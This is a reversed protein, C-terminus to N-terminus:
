KDGKSILIFSIFPLLMFIGLLYDYLFFLDRFPSAFSYYDEPIFYFYSSLLFISLLISSIILMVVGKNGYIRKNKVFSKLTTYIFVVSVLFAIITMLPSLIISSSDIILYKLLITSALVSVSGSVLIRTGLFKGLLFVIFVLGIFILIEFTM